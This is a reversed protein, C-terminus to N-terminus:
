RVLRVNSHFINKISIPRFNSICKQLLFCAFWFVYLCIFMYVQFDNFFYCNSHPAKPKYYMYHFVRSRLFGFLTRSALYFTISSLLNNIASFNEKDRPSFFITPECTTVIVISLWYQMGTHTLRQVKFLWEYSTIPELTWSRHLAWTVAGPETYCAKIIGNMLCLNDVFLQIVFDLTCFM